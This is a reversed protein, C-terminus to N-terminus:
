PSIGCTKVCPPTLLEDRPRNQTSRGSKQGGRGEGGEDTVVGRWDDDAAGEGEGTM